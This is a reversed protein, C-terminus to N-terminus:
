EHRSDHLEDYGYLTSFLLLYTHHSHMDRGHFLLALVVGLISTEEPSRWIDMSVLFPGWLGRAQEKPM